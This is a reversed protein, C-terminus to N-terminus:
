PEARGTERFAEWYVAAATLLLMGATAVSAAGPRMLESWMAPAAAPFPAAILILVAWGGGTANDARTVSLPVLVLLALSVLPRLFLEYLTWYGDHLVSDMLFTLGLFVAFFSLYGLYQELSDRTRLSRNVFFALVTLVLFVGLYDAILYYLYLGVPSYDSEVFRFFGLRGLYFPFFLFFAKVMPDRITAVSFPIDSLRSVAGLRPGILALCGVAGLLPLM